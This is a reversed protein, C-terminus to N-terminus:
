GPLPFVFPTIADATSTTARDPPSYAENLRRSQSQPSTASPHPRGRGPLGKRTVTRRSGWVVRRRRSSTTHLANLATAVAANSGTTEDPPM